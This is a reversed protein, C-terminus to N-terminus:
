PRPKMGDARRDSPASSEWREDKAGHTAKEPKRKSKRLMRVKPGAASVVIHGPPQLWPEGDVQVPFAKRLTVRAYNGQAIRIGSRLGSQVQGMHVVGTVGVVELLGDDISPKSYRADAESGWLDAGSGWSRAPLPLDPPRSTPLDRPAASVQLQLERHLSRAASIKQLGAKVYVGKNHFRAASLVSLLPPRRECTTALKATKCVRRLDSPPLVSVPLTERSPSPRRSTKPRLDVRSGLLRRECVLRLGTSRLPVPAGYRSTFKDPDDQRARHFDLSLEADIGVGLYNSMHVIKPAEPFTEAGDEGLDRADLLVTWRDMPVEDAEDVCALIHAPDEGGYGAGWRLVRALDNGTGLPVIGVPPERCALQHRLAELDGLVWGVTGDGGCVLVRFSPLARFAHFGPLPGGNSLDFVQHPNLIKRFGRLLEEGKLGGSKPNVFVLLPRVDEGAPGARVDPIVLPTLSRGRVRAARASTFVREAESWCRLRLGVAGRGAYVHSIDALHSKLDLAEETLQWYQEKSLLPPLGGILLSVQAPARSQREAVYFRTLNMRRLSMKRIDHLRELINQQPTLTQKEVRKASMFVEQLEFPTADDKGPSGSFAGDRLDSPASARLALRPLVEALVSAATADQSVGVGVFDRGRRAAGGYVQIVEAGGGKARLIWAAGDGPDGNREDDGRLRGLGGAEQLQFHRPDGPLYFARLAAELIERNGATRVVSVLRFRASELAEDGDYVKVFRKGREPAAPPGDGPSEVDDGDGHRRVVRVQRGGPRRVLRLDAPVGPLAGGAVPQGGALPPSLHGAAPARGRPVPPLRRLLLRRLRRARAARVSPLSASRKGGDAEQVRLLRAAQSRGPRPLSGRPDPGGLAGRQLVGLGADEPM